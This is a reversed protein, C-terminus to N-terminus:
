FDVITREYFGGKGTRRGIKLVGEGPPLGAFPQSGTRRVAELTQGSRTYLTKSRAECSAAFLAAGKVGKPPEGSRLRLFFCLYSIAAVLLILM